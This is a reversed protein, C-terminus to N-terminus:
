RGVEVGLLDAQARVADVFERETIVGGMVGRILAMLRDVTAMAAALQLLANM